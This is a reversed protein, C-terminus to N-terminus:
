KRRNLQSLTKAHDSYGTMDLRHAKPIDGRCVEYKQGLEKHLVKLPQNFWLSGFIADARVWQVNNEPTGSYQNRDSMVDSMGGSMTHLSLPRCWDSPLVADGSELIQVTIM